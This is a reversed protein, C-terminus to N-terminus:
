FIRPSLQRLLYGGPYVTPQNNHDIYIWNHLSCGPPSQTPINTICGNTNYVHRKETIVLCTNHGEPFATAFFLIMLESKLLINYRHFIILKSNFM